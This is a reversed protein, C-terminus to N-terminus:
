HDISINNDCLIQEIEDESKKMVRALRAISDGDLYFSIINEIEKNKKGRADGKELLGQGLNCMVEVDERLDKDIVINFNESLQQFRERANLENTFLVNLMRCLEKGDIQEINFEKTEEKLEGTIGAIVINILDSDCNWKYTGYLTKQTFHIQNVSDSEMNAVIWISYVKVIDNFNMHKFERQKQTGVLRCAYFIARNILDYSTPESKQMEINILIGYSEKVEKRTRVKFLIDYRILGENTETNETNLGVIRENNLRNTHGSDIPVKSVLVEGEILEVIEKVPIRKFETVTKSMIFALITKYSLIKKAQEDYQMALQITEEERSVNPIIM